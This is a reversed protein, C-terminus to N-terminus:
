GDWWDSYHKGQGRRMRKMGYAAGGGALAIGALTAAGKNSVKLKGAAARTNSAASRAENSLDFTRNARRAFKDALEGQRKAQRLHHANAAPAAKRKEALRISKTQSGRWSSNQKRYKANAADYVGARADAADAQRVMKVRRVRNVANRGQQGALVATASGGVGAAAWQEGKMRRQRRDELRIGGYDKEKRRPPTVPKGVLKLRRQQAAPRNYDSDPEQGVRIFRGQELMRQNHKRGEAAARRDDAEKVKLDWSKGVKMNEEQKAEKRQLNAFHIGSAGGVGSAVTVLGLSTKDASEAAKPTLRLRSAVQPSRKLAQRTAVAGGKTGLAALGLGAGTLSLGAQIRKDRAIEKSM